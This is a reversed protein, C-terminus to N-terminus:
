DKYQLRTARKPQFSPFEYVSISKLRYEYGKVFRVLMDGSKSFPTPTLETYKYCLQGYTIYETQM